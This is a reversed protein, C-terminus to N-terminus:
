LSAVVLTQKSCDRASEARGAWTSLKPEPNHHDVYGDLTEILELVSCFVGRKLQNETLNSFFREVM